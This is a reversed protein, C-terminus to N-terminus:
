KFQMIKYRSFSISGRYNMWESSKLSLLSSLDDAVDNLSDEIIGRVQVQAPIRVFAFAKHRAVLVFSRKVAKNARKSSISKANIRKDSSSEPIEDVTTLLMRQLQYSIRSSRIVRVGLVEVLAFCFAYIVVALTAINGSFSALKNSDEFLRAWVVSYQSFRVGGFVALKIGLWGVLRLLLLLAIIKLWKSFHWILSCARALYIRKAM